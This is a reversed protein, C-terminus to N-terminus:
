YRREVNMIVEELIDLAIDLEEKTSNLAPAIRLVHAGPVGPILYNDVSEKYIETVIEIFQEKTDHSKVFEIGLMLGIGRVDGIYKSKLKIEELRKLVYKGSSEAKALIDENEIVDIVASGVACSMPNGGFTNSAVIKSVCEGFEDKIVIGSMPFGNSMGKGIVYIDPIINWNDVCMFKGTRGFGTLIEDSILLINHKDCFERLMPFFDDPPVITGGWGQIPEVIIAAVNNATQEKLSLEYFEFYKKTDIYGKENVWIPRYKDPRPFLYFGEQRGKSHTTNIRGLSSSNRSKGHFDSYFSIIEYKGTIERAMRIAFEIAISGNDYLQITNFNEPFMNALKGLYEVKIDTMYDHVNELRKIQNCLKENLYPHSHGLNTVYVGSAFDIYMNDDVDKLFSGYGESFVIPNIAQRGFTVINNSGKEVQKLTNILTRQIGKQSCFEDLTNDNM